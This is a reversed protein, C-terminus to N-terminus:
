IREAEVVLRGKPRRFTATTFSARRLARRMGRETQFSEVRDQSFRFLRGTMHFAVGNAIGYLRFITPIPRPFANGWLEALTFGLPHLSLTVSGRPNLIRHIEGLARPIDMYPLSLACLVRNFSGDEFPLSEGKAAIFDRTSFRQQAIGLADLNADVGVVLDQATAGLEEDPKGPGCGLDLIRMSIAM